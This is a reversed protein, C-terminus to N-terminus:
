EELGDIKISELLKNFVKESYSAADNAENLDTEQALKKILSEQGKEKALLKLHNLREQKTM